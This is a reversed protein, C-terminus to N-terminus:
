WDPGLVESGSPTVAAWWTVPNMGPSLTRVSGDALGVVMGGPHATATRTPDCNGLFPSPQTQFKSAPGVANVAGRAVLAPVAFGTQFMKGPPNMPPPLWPFAPPSTCYAWVNGGTNVAPPLATTSCRAYKEAHLITNSTGDAFDAPIGAKGQPSLVPSANARASVQANVAYGAAGFTVSDVVVVGGSEVSPDSPCLLVPVPQAYVANNGPYYVVTPGVPPPFPVSGLSRNFLNGQELLPLLHFWYTGFTGNPAPPYYGIGPPLHQNVDHYHHAAVGLQKLNNACKIRAAAERVKQVAPLLLGILIAIIAIVVLLEILTFGRRPPRTHLLRV